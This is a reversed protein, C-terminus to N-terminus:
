SGGEEASEVPPRDVYLFGAEPGTPGAGPLPVPGPAAPLPPLAMPVTEMRQWGESFSFPNRAPEGEDSFTRYPRFVVARSSKPLTTDPVRIGRVPTILAGAFDYIGWALLLLSLIATLKERNLM